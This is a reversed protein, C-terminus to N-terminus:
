RLAASSREVQYDLYGKRVGQVLYYFGLDEGETVEVVLTGPTAEVVFLQGGRGMPTLQVTMGEAETLKSFFEPLDITVRGDVTKAQGRFYTGAEPGELSAYYYARSADEPDIVAFNKVGTVSLDGNVNVGTNPNLNINGNSASINMDNMAIRVGGNNQLSLM